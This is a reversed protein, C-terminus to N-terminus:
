FNDNVLNYVATNTESCKNLITHVIFVICFISDHTTKFDEHSSVLIDALQQWLLAVYCTM